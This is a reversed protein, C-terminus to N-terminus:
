PAIATEHLYRWAPQGNDIDIIALSWRALVSEQHYHTERYRCVVSEATVALTECADIDIRLGPRAATNRRFLAEVESLGILQGNITVMSFSASFSSLLKELMSPSGDRGTFVAEIWQHLEIVSRHAILERESPM